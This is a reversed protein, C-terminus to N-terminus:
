PLARGDITITGLTRRIGPELLGIEAGTVTFNLTCQAPKLEFLGAPVWRSTAEDYLKGALDIKLGRITVERLGGSGEEWTFPAMNYLGDKSVGKITLGEIEDQARDNEGGWGFQIPAANRHQEITVNRVVVDRYAKIADDGTSIFCDSITSGGSGIFGDSNNNQGPRTDLLDCDAVHLVSSNAYGSIHYGRPNQSTLNSVHVTADALVSVTGYKWKDHDAVGNSATWQELGTGFVVSTRRAGGVIHLPNEPARFGVRFGGRVTVNPDIHIRRVESPVQWFFEEKGERMNGSSAFTFTGTADDWQTEGSYILGGPVQAPALHILGLLVVAATNLTLM